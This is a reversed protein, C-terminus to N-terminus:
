PNCFECAQHKAFKKSEWTFAPQDKSGFPGHWYYQDGQRKAYGSQENELLLQLSIRSVQLAIEKTDIESGPLAPTSCSGYEPGLEGYTRSGESQPLTDAGHKALCRLCASKGHQVVQISGSHGGASVRAFVFPIEFKPVYLENLLYDVSEEATLVICLDSQRLSQELLGVDDLIDIHFPNVTINPNSKLILQRTVIVKQEGIYFLDAAHRVSNGIEFTDNDFLNFHGVGNRALSRAVESGIAGLGIITVKKETLIKNDFIDKTRHYLEKDIDRAVIYHVRNTNNLPNYQL